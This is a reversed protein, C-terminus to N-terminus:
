RTAPPQDLLEPIRHIQELDALSFDIALLSLLQLPLGLEAAAQLKHHGDLVFHTLGWHQYFDRTGVNMAPRCVDLTSVAVATPEGSHALRNAMAAVRTPVNWTPPVMPVVFEYLHANDSVATEFTRYYPTQPYQPLGWFREVNWTAVQEDAFYDGPKVPYVLRPEITTLLPQYLGNPLLEAFASVVELDIDAIGDALKDTLEPISLTRNAGELRKFLFQCTGCWFSLEFAPTDEVWLFRQGAWAGQNAEGQKFNLLPESERGLQMPERTEILV